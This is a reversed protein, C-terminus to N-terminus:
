SHHIAFVVNGIIQRLAPPTQNLRLAHRFFSGCGAFRKDSLMFTELFLEGRELSHQKTRTAFPHRCCSM